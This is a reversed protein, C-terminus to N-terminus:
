NLLYYLSVTVTSNRVDNRQRQITLKSILHGLDDTLYERNFLNFIAKFHVMKHTTVCLLKFVSNEINIQKPLEDFFFIIIFQNLLYFNNRDVERSYYILFIKLV